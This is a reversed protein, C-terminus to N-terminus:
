SPAPHRQVYRRVKGGVKARYRTRSSERDCAKCLWRRGSYKSKDRYFAEGPKVVGCRPCLVSMEGNGQM